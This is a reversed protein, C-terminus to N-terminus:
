LFQTIEPAESLNATGAEQMVGTMNNMTLSMYISYLPKWVFPKLWSVCIQKVCKACYKWSIMYQVCGILVLEKQSFFIIKSWWKWLVFLLLLKSARKVIKTQFIRLVLIKKAHGLYKAIFHYFEWITYKRCYWFAFLIGMAVNYFSHHVKIIIITAGQILNIVSISGHEKHQYIIYFSIFLYTM